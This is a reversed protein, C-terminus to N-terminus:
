RVAGAPQKNLYEEIEEKYEEPFILWEAQIEKDTEYEILKALTWSPREHGNVIDSLYTRHIGLTKAFESVKINREKLWKQLPTKYM